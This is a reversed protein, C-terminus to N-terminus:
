LIPQLNYCGPFPRLIRPPAGIQPRPLFWHFSSASEEKSSNNPAQSSPLGHPCAALALPTFGRQV